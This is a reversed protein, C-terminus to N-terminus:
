YIDEEVELNLAKSVKRAKKRMRSLQHLRENETNYRPSDVDKFTEEGVRIVLNFGGLASSRDGEWEHIVVKAKM